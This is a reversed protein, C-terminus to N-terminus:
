RIKKERDSHTDLWPDMHMEPPKPHLWQKISGWVACVFGIAFLATLLYVFADFAHDIM